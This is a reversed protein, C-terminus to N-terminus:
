QIYTIYLSLKMYMRDRMSTIEFNRYTIGTFVFLPGTVVGDIRDMNSWLGFNVERRGTHTRVSLPCPIESYLSEPCTVRRPCVTELTCSGRSSIHPRSVHEVCSEHCVVCVNLMYFYKGSYPSGASIQGARFHCPKSSSLFPM